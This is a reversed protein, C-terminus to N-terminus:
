LCYTIFSDVEHKREM